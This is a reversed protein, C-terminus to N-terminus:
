PVALDPHENTFHCTKCEGQIAEKCTECWFSDSLPIRCIKCSASEDVGSLEGQNKYGKDKKRKPERLAKKIPGWIQRIRGDSVELAEGIEQSTAEPNNKLYNVVKIKLDVGKNLKGQAELCWRQIMEVGHSPIDEIDPLDPVGLNLYKAYLKLAHKRMDEYFSMIVVWHGIYKKPVWNRGGLDRYLDTPSGAEITKEIYDYLEKPTKFKM